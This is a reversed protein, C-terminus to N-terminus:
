MTIFRYWKQVIALQLFVVMREEALISKLGWVSVTKVWEFGASRTTYVYVKDGHMITYNTDPWTWYPSECFPVILPLVQYERIGESSPSGQVLHLLKQDLAMFTIFMVNPIQDDHYTPVHKRRM